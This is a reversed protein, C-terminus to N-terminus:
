RPAAAEIRAVRRLVDPVSDPNLSISDIGAEVLFEAFDPYDSPAQGCIGVPVGKAHAKQILERIMAKVAPNREDFVDALEASDRDVGLVLQTLDNSGISFGDFREAFESALVVNSPIEAMVYIQLDNRGRELGGERMVELVRDAEELTRCFPIMVVVNRLGIEERVHRIAECELLFGDRYLERYYRSAGRVGIMPNEESPEFDAGGILRAYENTKFDSTRLIVPDPYQTAAIEAIGRALKDVFFERKDSYGATVADIERRLEETDLQEFRVLAMPHVRIVNTILFEMRALGIGHCPLRHWRMAAAPSAINLMIRTRTTPLDALELESVEFALRGDFVVGQSGEACSVTVQMGDRLKATADGAGVIAPIGLERSVIAAHATRGGHDTVIAAAREVIPGWDPDTIEAVLVDGDAFREREDPSRLVCVRGSAIADGVALGRVLETSREQLAYTTLAAQRKRSQVTEPRAQVVFLDGTVGDKAWEIDMACGYHAEIERGWEALQLVEVDDLVFSAREDLSTEVTQIPREDDDCLTSRLLKAGCDRGLIPRLEARGLLPKFVRYEDPDVLGGVVTDGLGWAANIVIVDQFGTETDITFMVGAGALDSRVMLQVGVSLAVDLHAFGQEDRYSIARDTFLSAYCRRCAELLAAEGRVNLYSEQQGAFSAEPLDEATASSRVAVALEDAGARRALERYAELLSGELSEPIESELFANRIAAGANALTTEGRHYAAVRERIRDRLENHEVFGWYASATTAFGGPVRIGAAVLQGIMEGLSANKGGVLGVDARSLTELWRVDTSGAANM